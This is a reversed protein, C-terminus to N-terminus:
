VAQYCIKRHFNLNQAVTAYGLIPEAAHIMSFLCEQENTIPYKKCSVISYSGHSKKKETHHM